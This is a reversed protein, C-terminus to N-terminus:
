KLWESIKKDSMYKHMVIKEIKIFNSNYFGVEVLCRSKIKDMKSEEEFISLLKLEPDLACVLFLIKEEASKIGLLKSQHILNYLCTTYKHNEDVSANWLLALKSISEFRESSINDFSINSNNLIISLYPSNDIRVDTLLDNIFKHYYDKEARLLLESFFGVEKRVMNKKYNYSMKNDCRLYTLYMSCQPDCSSIIFTLYEDYSPVLVNDRYGGTKSLQTKGFATSLYELINAYNQSRLGTDHSYYFNNSLNQIKERQKDDIDEFRNYSPGLKESDKFIREELYTLNSSAFHSNYDM